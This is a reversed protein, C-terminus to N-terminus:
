FGAFAPTKKKKKKKKKSNEKDRRLAHSYNMVKPKVKQVRLKAKQTKM